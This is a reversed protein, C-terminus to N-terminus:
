IGLIESLNLGKQIMTFLSEAIHQDSQDCYSLQVDTCIWIPLILYSGVARRALEQMDGESYTLHLLFIHILFFFLKLASFFVVDNM